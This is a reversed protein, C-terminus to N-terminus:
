CCERTIRFILIQTYNQQSEQRAVLYAFWPRLISRYKALKYPALHPDQVQEAGADFRGRRCSLSLATNGAFASLSVLCITQGVAFSEGRCLLYHAAM